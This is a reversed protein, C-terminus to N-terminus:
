NTCDARISFSLKQISPLTNRGVANVYVHRAYQGPQWAVQENTAPDKYTGPIVYSRVVRFERVEAVPFEDLESFIITAPPDERWTAMKLSFAGPELVDMEFYFDLSEGPCLDTPGAVVIESVILVSEASVSDRSGSVLQLLGISFLPVGLIGVMVIMWFWREMRQVPKAVYQAPAALIETLQQITPPLKEVEAESSTRTEFLTDIHTM